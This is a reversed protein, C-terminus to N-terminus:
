ETQSPCEKGINVVVSEKCFSDTVDEDNVTTVDEELYAVPTCSKNQFLYTGHIGKENLQLHYGHMKRKTCSNYMYESKIVSKLYMNVNNIYM